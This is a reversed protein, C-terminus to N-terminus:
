EISSSPGNKHSIRERNKLPTGQSLPVADISASENIAKTQKSRTHRFFADGARRAIQPVAPVYAGFETPM